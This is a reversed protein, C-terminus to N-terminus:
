TLSPNTSINVNASYRYACLHCPSTVYHKSQTSEASHIHSQGSTRHTHISSHISFFTTPNSYPRRVVINVNVVLTASEIVEKLCSAPSGSVGPDTGSGLLPTVPFFFFFFFFFISSIIIIIIIIIILLSHQQLYKDSRFIIIEMWITM